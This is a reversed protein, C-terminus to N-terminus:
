FIPFCGRPWARRSGRGITGGSLGSVLPTRMDRSHTATRTPSRARAAKRMGLWAATASLALGLENVPVAPAVVKVIAPALPDVTPVHALEVREPVIVLVAAPTRVAGLLM